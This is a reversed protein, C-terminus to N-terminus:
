LAEIDVSVLTNDLVLVHISTDGLEADSSASTRVRAESRDFRGVALLLVISEEVWLADILAADLGSLDTVLPIALVNLVLDRHVDNSRDPLVPESVDNLQDRAVEM